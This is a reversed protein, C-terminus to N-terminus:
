SGTRSRRVAVGTSRDRPAAPAAYRTTVPRALAAALDRVRTEPDVEEHRERGAWAAWCMALVLVAGAPALWWLVEM